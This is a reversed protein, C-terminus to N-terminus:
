GHAEEKDGGYGHETSAVTGGFRSEEIYGRVRDDNHLGEASAAFGHACALKRRAESPASRRRENPICSLKIAWKGLQRSPLPRFTTPHRPPRGLQHCVELRWLSM